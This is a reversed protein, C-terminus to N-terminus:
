IKYVFYIRWLSVGLYLIRLIKRDAGCGYLSTWSYVRIHSIARWIEKQWVRRATAVRENTHNTEAQLRIVPILSRAQSDSHSSWSAATLWLGAWVTVQACAEFLSDNNSAFYYNGMKQKAKIIPIRTWTTRLADRSRVPTKLSFTDRWKQM